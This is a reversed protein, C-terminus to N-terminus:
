RWDPATKEPTSVGVGSVTGAAQGRSLCGVSGKSNENHSWTQFLTSMKSVWVGEQYSSSMPGGKIQQGADSLDKENENIHEELM